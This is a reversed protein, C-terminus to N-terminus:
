GDRGYRGSDGGFSEQSSYGLKPRSPNHSWRADVRNRFSRSRKRAQQVLAVDVKRAGENNICFRTEVVCSTEPSFWSLGGAPAM